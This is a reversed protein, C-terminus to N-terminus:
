FPSKVGEDDWTYLDCRRCIPTKKSGPFQQKPNKELTPWIEWPWRNSTIYIMQTRPSIHFTGGKYEALLPYIDLLNKMTTYNMDGNPMGGDYDNILICYEGSYECWWKNTPNKPYVEHHEWLEYADRSKGVGSPGCHWQVELEDPTIMRPKHMHTRMHLEKMNRGYRLFQAGTQADLLIKKFNPEELIVKHLDLLDSRKGQGTMSAWDGIFIPDGIRTDEKTCYDYNHKPSGRCVFLHSRSEVIHKKVWRLEVGRKFEMYGQMHLRGTTPCKEMQMVARRLAENEGGFKFEEQDKLFHTFGWRRVKTMENTCEQWLETDYEYTSNERLRKRTM